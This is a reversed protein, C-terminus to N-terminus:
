LMKTLHPSILIYDSMVPHNTQFGWPYNLMIQFNILIGMDAVQVRSQNLYITKKKDYQFLILVASWCWYILELDKLCLIMILFWYIWGSVLWLQIQLSDEAHKWACISIVRLACFLLLLFQNIKTMLLVIFFPPSFFLFCVSVSTSTATHQHRFNNCM